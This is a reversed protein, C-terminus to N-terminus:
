CLVRGARVACHSRCKQPLVEADVELSRWSPEWFVGAAGGHQAWSRVQSMVVEHAEKHVRMGLVVKVTRLGGVLM